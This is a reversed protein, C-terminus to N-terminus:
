GNCAAYCVNLSSVVRQSKLGVSPACCFPASLLSFPVWDAATKFIKGIRKIRRAEGFAKEISVKVAASLIWM